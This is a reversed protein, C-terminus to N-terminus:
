IEFLHKCAMRTHIQTHITALKEKGSNRNPMLDTYYIHESVRIEFTLACWQPACQVIYVDCVCVCIVLRDLMYEIVVFEIHNHTNNTHTKYSYM